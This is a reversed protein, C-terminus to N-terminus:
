FTRWNLECEIYYSDDKDERYRKQNSTKFLKNMDKLLIVLKDRLAKEKFILMVELMGNDTGQVIDEENVQLIFKEDYDFFSDGIDDNMDLFIDESDKGWATGWASCHITLTDPLIKHKKLFKFLRDLDETKAKEHFHTLESSISTIAQELHHSLLRDIIDQYHKERKPYIKELLNKASSELEPYQKEIKEVASELVPTLAEILIENPIEIDDWLWHPILDLLEQEMLAFDDELYNDYFFSFNFIWDLPDMNSGTSYHEYIRSRLSEKNSFGINILNQIGQDVRQKLSVDAYAYWGEIRNTNEQAYKDVRQQYVKLLESNM